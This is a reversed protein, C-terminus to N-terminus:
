LSSVCTVLLCMFFTSTRLASNRKQFWYNWFCYYVQCNGTMSTYSIDVCQFIQKQAGVFSIFKSFGCSSLLIPTLPVTMVHSDWPQSSPERSLGAKQIFIYHRVTHFQRLLCSSVQQVDKIIPWIRLLSLRHGWRARSIKLWSKIKVVTKKLWKM